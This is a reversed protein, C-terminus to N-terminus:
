LMVFWDRVFWDRVFWDIVFWAIVGHWNGVLRFLRVM